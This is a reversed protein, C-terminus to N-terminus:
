EDITWVAILGCWTGKAAAILQHPISAPGLYVEVGYVSQPRIGQLQELGLVQVNDVVIPFECTKMAERTSVRGRASVARRVGLSDAITVGSVNRLIQIVSGPNQRLIQKRTVYAGPGRAAARKDFDALRAPLARSVDDMADSEEDDNKAAFSAQAIAINVSLDREVHRSEPLLQVDVRRGTSRSSAPAAELSITTALPLGCLTYSGGIASHTSVSRTQWSFGEGVSQFKLKYTASVRVDGIGYQSQDVVRGRITGVTDSQETCLSPAIGAIPTTEPADNPAATFTAVGRNLATGDLAYLLQPGASLTQVDGGTVNLGEVILTTSLHPILGQTSASVRKIVTRPMRLEWHKVFWLGGDTRAFEVVGGVRARVMDPALPDYSFEVSELVGTTRHLWMVGRIDVRERTSRVPRFGVGVYDSRDQTGNVFEFCHSNVFTDSLLVTADPARYVTGDGEQYVYGMRALSDASMSVFPRSTERTVSHREIPALQRGRLDEVRTFTAFRATINAADAAISSALLAKRAEEYLQAVLWGSDPRVTCRNRDQVTVAALHVPANALAIRVAPVTTPSITHPGDMTPRQGIRLLQLWVRRDSSLEEATLRIQFRGDPATTRRALVSDRRENLMLVIVGSAPTAGDPHMVTGSLGQALPALRPACLLLAGCVVRALLRRASM